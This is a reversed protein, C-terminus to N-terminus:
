ASRTRGSLDANPASEPPAPLPMWHTVEYLGSDDPRSRWVSEDPSAGRGYGPHYYWEYHGVAVGDAHKLLLDPPKIYDPHTVNSPGDEGSGRPATEIPQWKMTEESREGSLEPGIRNIVDGEDPSQQLLVAREDAIYISPSGRMAQIAALRKLWPAAANDHQQRICRLVEYIENVEIENQDDRM